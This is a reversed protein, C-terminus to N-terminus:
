APEPSDGLPLRDLERAQISQSVKSSLTIKINGCCFNLIASDVAGDIGVLGVRCIFTGLVTITDVRREGQEAELTSRIALADTNECPM